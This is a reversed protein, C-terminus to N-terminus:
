SRVEAIVARAKRYERVTARLLVERARLYDGSGSAGADYAACADAWDCAADAVKRAAGDVIGKNADSDTQVANKNM